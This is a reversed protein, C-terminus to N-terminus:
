EISPQNMEEWHIALWVTDGDTATQEVRHKTHAPIEVWQGVELIIPEDLDTFSLVASGKLILVWETSTQDYWFDPPSSHQRSIIREIKLNGQGETLLEILETPLESPIDAFLNGSKM